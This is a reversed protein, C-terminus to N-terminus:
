LKGADAKAPRLKGSDLLKKFHTVNAEVGDDAEDGMDLEKAKRAWESEDDLAKDVFQM